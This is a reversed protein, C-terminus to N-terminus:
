WSVDQKRVQPHLLHVHTGPTKHASTFRAKSETLQLLCIFDMQPTFRLGPQSSGTWMASAQGASWQSLLSNTPTATLAM